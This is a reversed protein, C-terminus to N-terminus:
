HTPPMTSRRDPHLEFLRQLYPFDHVRHEPVRFPNQDKFEEWTTFCYVSVMVTFCQEFQSSGFHTSHKSCTYHEEIVIRTWMRSSACCSNQCFKALLQKMIWGRIKSGNTKVNEQMELFAQGGTLTKAVLFLQLHRDCAPEM